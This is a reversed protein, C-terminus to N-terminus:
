NGVLRLHNNKTAVGIRKHLPVSNATKRNRLTAVVEGRMAILGEYVAPDFNVPQRGDAYALCGKITHGPYKEALHGMYLQVQYFEYYRVRGKYKRSKFEGVVLEKARKSAFVADAMGNISYRSLRIGKTSGGLDSGLLQHTSESVGFRSFVESAANAKMIFFVAALVLLGALVYLVM